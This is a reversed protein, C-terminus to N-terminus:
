EEEDYGRPMDTWLWNLWPEDTGIIEFVSEVDYFLIHDEAPDVEAMAPGTSHLMIIRFPYKRELDRPDDRRWTSKKKLSTM